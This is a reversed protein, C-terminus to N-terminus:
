LSHSSIKLAHVLVRFSVVSVFRFSDFQFSVFRFSVFCFILFIIVIFKGTFTFLPSPGVPSRLEHCIYTQQERVNPRGVKSRVQKKLTIHVKNNSPALWPASTM